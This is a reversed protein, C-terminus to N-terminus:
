DFIFFAKLYIKKKNRLMIFTQKKMLNFVYM